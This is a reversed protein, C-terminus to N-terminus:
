QNLSNQFAQIQDLFEPPAPVSVLRASIASNGTVEMNFQRSFRADVSVGVAITRNQEQNSSEVSSSTERFQETITFESSEAVNVQRSSTTFLQIAFTDESRAVRVVNGTRSARHTSTANIATTLNQAYAHASGSGPGGSVAAGSFEFETGDITVSNGTLALPEPQYLHLYANDPGGGAAGIATPAVAAPDFNPGTRVFIWHDDLPAAYLFTVRWDQNDFGDADGADDAPQEGRTPPTSIRAQSAPLGQSVLLDRITRARAEGLALNAARPGQRDTFGEIEVSQGTAQLMGVLRQMSDISDPQPDQVGTDHYTVAFQVRPGPAMHNVRTFGAATFQQAVHAAYDDLSAQATTSVTLSGNVVFDTNANARVRILASNTDPRLFAITPSNVVVKDTPTEISMDPRTDPPNFVLREIEGTGGALRAQLNSLRETPTSGTPTITDGGQVALAATSDSRMTLRASKTLSRDTSTSSSTSSSSSGTSANTDNVGAQIGFGFEDSKGVEMRLQMSCTIDAHQYHYFAPSLGLDLLSRGGLDDRRTTFIEMQRVSNDDLATQAAAIGLGLEKIFEAVSSDALIEGPTMEDLDAM